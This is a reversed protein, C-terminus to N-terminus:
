WPSRSRPSRQARAALRRRRHGLVGVVHHHAGVRARLGRLRLLKAHRDERLRLKHRQELAPWVRQVLRRQTPRARLHARPPEGGGRAGAGVQARARRDLAPVDAHRASRRRASPMRRPPRTGRSRLGDRALEPNDVRCVDMVYPCRDAFRCGLPCSAGHRSSLGPHGAARTARGQASPVLEAPGEHVPPSAPPVRGAVDAQEVIEGAYMIAIRDAVEVLLSVDHTIFIVSFGLRSRLDSIEELIQRQMVVDLATTPEDMILLEPELALATAIMVRQRMGGSLQHPYAGLRDTSIGVMDLLHAAREDLERKKAKPNHAKIADQLQDGVRHVPNLSNMAGQFVIAFDRWRAARLEKDNLNLIDYSEGNRGHFLVEGSRIVGPPPLLRTSGYALTSKGCGSEGALGLMEGRALTLSVHDLVRVPNEGFGYEISLEKIELIPDGVGTATAHHACRRHDDHSRRSPSPTPSDAGRRRAHRAHEIDRRDVPTFGVRARVGRKKLAKAYKGTSRLRPNVFEDIGFNVLALAVGVAAICLGAPVFWWWAGRILAQNSQANFLVTGWSWQDLGTVGIFALTVQTLIAFTVTGVFSSAIIASLNPLIEALVIRPTSEGNARAAEVYDRRRHSLTQARLVRAGWAWATIAIVVAVVLSPAGDLPGAIIIILPLAPLVLFVNSLLSLGEDTAGGLYGATVGVVVAIFTALIGALFGVFM